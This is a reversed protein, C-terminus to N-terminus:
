PFFLAQIPLTSKKESQLFVHSCAVPNREASPIAPIVCPPINIAQRSAHSHPAFTLAEGGDAQAPRNQTLKRDRAENGAKSPAGQGAEPFDQQLPTGRM